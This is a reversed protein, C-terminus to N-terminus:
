KKMDRPNIEPIPPTKGYDFDRYITDDKTREAERELDHELQKLQKINDEDAIQKLRISVKLFAEQINAENNVVSCKENGIIDTHPTGHRRRELKSCINIAGNDAKNGEASIIYEWKRGHCFEVPAAQGPRQEIQWFLAGTEKAAAIITAVAAERMEATPFRKHYPILCLRFGSVVFSWVVLGSVSVAIAAIAMGGIVIVKALHWALYLMVIILFGAGILQWISATALFNNVMDM